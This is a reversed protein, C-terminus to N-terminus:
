STAFPTASTGASLMTGEIFWVDAAINTLKWMSGPEGEQANTIEVSSFSNAAEATFSGASTIDDTDAVALSGIIKENTTDTCKVEQGTGQFNSIFSYSVGIIDGDGSDPLTLVAAADTFVFTKGSDEATLSTDATVSEVDVKGGVLTTGNLKLERKLNEILGQMRALGIRKSGM